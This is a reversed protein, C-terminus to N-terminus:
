KGGRDRAGGWRRAQPARSQRSHRTAQELITAAFVLRLQASGSRHRSVPERKPEVLWAIGISLLYLAIMPAAFVTQNWPDASATLVAALIFIVLVAYKVNRWLIRATVLRMRALVFVVPPLQFVIVMALLMKLYQDLTDEIRPLFKVRPSSFGAFFGMTGPFLVYHSFLAGCITGAVALVIFPVVHKKENTYLGPAIFRWVQFSVFPAALVAGSILAVNLYFSFTEGWRTAILESGPPLVRMTATLVFDAIRDVFFFAVVMGGGLAVCSKILRARLEDLHDLFGMRAEPEGEPDQTELRNHLQAM